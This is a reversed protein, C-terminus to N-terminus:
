FVIFICCFMLAWFFQGGLMLGMYAQIDEQPRWLNSSAQYMDQMYYGHFLFDFGWIFAFVALVSVMFRKCNVNCM